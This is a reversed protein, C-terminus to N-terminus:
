GPAECPALQERELSHFALKLLEERPRGAYRKEWRALEARFDGYFSGM